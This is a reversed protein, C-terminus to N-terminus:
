LNLYFKLENRINDTRIKTMASKEIKRIWEKTVRCLSAIEGLSKCRGDNLGYRLELVQRERTELSELLEMIDNRMHRRTIIEDPVKISADSTVEMFKARWGDVIEKDLSGGVRSCKRALRVNALSLGTLQAMEDDGPYRGEEDYFTRKATQIRKIFREMTVPIQIGKSHHALLDLMSKRIWYQVYTSFRYGRTDDFREAGRLVGMSGAQLLDDFAIGMGRYNRALYVVLSRTSKILRDRCYWGLQLRKQLTKQDIGAAKAWRAYSASQGIEGELKLRTKELDAIEKVGKSMESENRAILSRRSRSKSSAKPRALVNLSSTKSDQMKEFRKLSAKTRRLKREERRGTRVVATTKQKGVHLDTTDDRLNKGLLLNPNVYTSTTLTRSLCAHFLKLAGLKGIHVLIDRELRVLDAGALIDEIKDVNEILFSFQLSSSQRLSAVCVSADKTMAIPRSSDFLDTSFETDNLKRIEEYVSTHEINQVAGTYAKLADRHRDGGELFPHYALRGSDFAEWGRLSSPPRQPQKPVSSQVAFAWRRCSAMFGIGM